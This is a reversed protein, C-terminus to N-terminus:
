STPRRTKGPAYYRRFIKAVSPGNKLTYILHADPVRFEM